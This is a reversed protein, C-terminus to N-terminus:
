RANLTRLMTADPVRGFATYLGITIMAQNEIFYNMLRAKLTNGKKVNVAVDNKLTITSM